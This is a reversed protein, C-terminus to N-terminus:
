DRRGKHGYPDWFIWGLLGVVGVVLLICLVPWISGVFTVYLGGGLLGAVFAAAVARDPAWRGYGSARAAPRAMRQELLAQAPPPLDATLQGLEGRTTAEYVAQMRQEYEALPLREEELAIHLWAVTREREEASALFKDEAPQKSM